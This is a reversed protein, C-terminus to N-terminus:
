EYEGKVRYQRLTGTGSKVTFIIGDGTIDHRGSLTPTVFEDYTLSASLYVNSLDFDEAQSAPVKFVIIGYGGEAQEKSFGENLLNGDKDYEYITGKIQSGSHSVSCMMQAITNSDHVFEDDADECSQCIGFVCLMLTALLSFKIANKM